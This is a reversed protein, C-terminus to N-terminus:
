KRKKRFETLLKKLDAEVSIMQDEAFPVLHPITEYLLTSVEKKEEALLEDQGLLERARALAKELEGVGQAQHKDKEANFTTRANDERERVGRRWYIFGIICAILLGALLLLSCTLVLFDGIEKGWDREPKASLPTAVVLAATPSAVSAATATPVVRPTTTATPAPTMTVVRGVIVTQPVPIVTVASVALTPLFNANSFLPLNRSSITACNGDKVRGVLGLLQGAVPSLGLNDAKQYYLKKTSCDTSRDAVTMFVGSAQVSYSRDWVLLGTYISALINPSTEVKYLELARQIANVARVRQEYTFNLDELYVVGERTDQNSANTVLLSSVEFGCHSTFCHLILGFGNDSNGTKFVWQGQSPWEHSPNPPPNDFMWGLDFGANWVKAGPKLHVLNDSGQALAQTPSFSLVVLMFSLLYLRLASFPPSPINLKM